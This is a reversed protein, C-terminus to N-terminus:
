TMVSALEDTGLPEDHALLRDLVRADAESAYGRRAQLRAACCKCRRRLAEEPM